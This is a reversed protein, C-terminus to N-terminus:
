GHKAYAWVQRGGSEVKERDLVESRVAKLVMGSLASQPFILGKQELKGQLDRLTKPEAFFGQEILAEFADSASGGGKRSKGKPKNIREEAGTEPETHKDAKARAKRSAPKIDGRVYAGVHRLNAAQIKYHGEENSLLHIDKLKKLAPRLTGGAIGLAAELNAPKTPYEPPDDSVYQWGAIATLYVLIKAESSLSTGDPTFIIRGATPDYRVFEAVINEIAEEDLKSSDAILDKLPM